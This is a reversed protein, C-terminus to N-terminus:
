QVLSVKCFVTYHLHRSLGKKLKEMTLTRNNREMFKVRMRKYIDVINRVNYEIQPVKSTLFFTMRKSSFASQDFKDFSGRTKLRLVHRARAVTEYFPFCM